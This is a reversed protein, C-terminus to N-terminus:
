GPPEVVYLRDRTVLGDLLDSMPNDSDDDVVMVTCDQAPPVASM